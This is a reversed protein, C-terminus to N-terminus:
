GITPPWDLKSADIINSPPVYDHELIHTFWRTPIALNYCEIYDPLDDLWVWAGDSRFSISEGFREGTFPSPFAWRSTSAVVSARTIYKRLREKDYKAVIEPAVFDRM